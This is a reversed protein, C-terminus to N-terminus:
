VKKLWKMKAFGGILAAISAAIIAYIWWPWPSPPCCKLCPHREQFHHWNDFVGLSGGEKVLKFATSVNNILVLCSDSNQPCIENTTKLGIRFTIVDGAPFEGGPLDGVPLKWITEIGLLVPCDPDGPCALVASSTYPIGDYLVEILEPPFSEDFYEGPQEWVEINFNHGLTTGSNEITILYEVFDGGDIIDPAIIAKGSPDITSVIELDRVISIGKTKQGNNHNIVECSLSLSLTQGLVESGEDELFTENIKIQVAVQKTEGAPLEINFSHIDSILEPLWPVDLDFAVTAGRALAEPTLSYIFNCNQFTIPHDLPNKFDLIIWMPYNPVPKYDPRKIYLQPDGLGRWLPDILFTPEYRLEIASHDVPPLELEAWTNADTNEEFHFPTEPDDELKIGKSTMKVNILRGPHLDYITPMSDTSYSWPSFEWFFVHWNLQKPNLNVGLGDIPVFRKTFSDYRFDVAINDKPQGFVPEFLVSSGLLM